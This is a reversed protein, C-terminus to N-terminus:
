AYANLASQLRGAFEPSVEGDARPLDGNRIKPDRFIDDQDDAFSSGAMNSANVRGDTGNAGPFADYNNYGQPEFAGLTTPDEADIDVDDSNYVFENSKPLYRHTPGLDEKRKGKGKNKKKSAKRKKRTKKASVDGHLEPDWREDLADAGEYLIRSLLENAVSRYDISEVGQVQEKLRSWAAKKDTSTWTARLEDDGLSKWPINGEEPVDTALIAQLLAYIDGPKMNAVKKSALKMRWPNKGPTPKKNGIERSERIAQLYDAQERKKLQGWKFSCQLRSRGGGHEGMRDSVSQWNIHKMDEVEQDSETGSKPVDEGEERARLRDDKILQMCELIATCLNVVEADTWQERNRHESNVHYNRWRDRCDEPMRGLTDGIEKWAKGKEEVAQKLMQDEEAGWPGRSFNHFRRRSFKQVSMRPRDPLIDHIENFLGSVQANGRMQTQILNNFQWITIDNAECYNDRFADLKLGEVASFAGRNEATDKMPREVQNDKQSGEHEKKSRVKNNEGNNKRRASKKVQVEHGSIDCDRDPPNDIFPSGLESSTQRQRDEFGPLVRDQMNEQDHQFAYPSMYPLDTTNVGQLEELRKRKRPQSSEYRGSGRGNKQLINLDEDNLNSLDTSPPLANMSHLEPDIPMDDGEIEHFLDTSSMEMELFDGFLKFDFRPVNQGQEHAFNHQDAGEGDTRRKRKKKSQKEANQPLTYVNKPLQCNAHMGEGVKDEDFANTPQQSFSFIDHDPDGPPDASTTDKAYEEYAAVDDDDTPIEDLANAPPVNPRYPSPSSPDIQGTPTSPLDSYQEAENSPKEGGTFEYNGIRSGKKPGRKSNAKRSMSKRIPETGDVYPDTSLRRPSSEAMLQASAAHSDEYYPLRSEHIRAMHMLALASEEEQDIPEDMEASKRKSKKSKGKKDKRKGQYEMAAEAPLPEPQSSQQGM